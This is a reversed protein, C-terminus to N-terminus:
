DTQKAAQDQVNWGWTLISKLQAAMSLASGTFDTSSLEGEDFSRQVMFSKHKLYDGIEEDEVHEYGRPLRKLKGGYDLLESGDLDNMVTRFGDPDEVIRDRLARLFDKDPQWFGAVLFCNDPEIHLYLGGSEKKSGSRSLVAGLHTKYPEKNASFRVDRYIRFVSKSPDGRLPLGAGPAARAMDAVLCRLPWILEDDFTQKRAKFWERENNVKLDRLFQFAEDRFGPFPPLDDM